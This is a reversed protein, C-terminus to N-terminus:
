ATPPAIEENPAAESVAYLLLWASGWAVSGLLVGIAQVVIYSVLGVEVMAGIDPPLAPGPFIRFLASVPRANQAAALHRDLAGPEALQVGMGLLALATGAMTAVVWSQFAGLRRRRRREVLAAVALAILPVALFGSSKYLGLALIAVGGIGAAVRKV